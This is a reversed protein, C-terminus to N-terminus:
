FTSPWSGIFPLFAGSAGQKVLYLPCSALFDRYKGQFNRGLGNFICFCPQFVFQATTEFSVIDVGKGRPGDGCARPFSFRRPAVTPTVRDMGARAPFVSARVMAVPCSDTWGRVRPSFTNRVKVMCGGTTWGRVRPSFSIAAEAAEFDKPGDGCARPFSKFMGNLLYTKRDMGARAPFVKPCLSPKPGDATWGRVRPSFADKFEILKRNVTWGRVRPSFRNKEALAKVKSPGDGCARPFSGPRRHAGRRRGTWGRVRPSFVQVNCCM